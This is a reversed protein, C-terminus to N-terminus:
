PPQPPREEIAQAVMARLVSRMAEYPQPRTTAAVAYGQNDLLVFAPVASVKYHLLEPAWRAEDDSDVQLLECRGGVAAAAQRVDGGLRQCLPCAKSTFWLISPAQGAAPLKLEAAAPC